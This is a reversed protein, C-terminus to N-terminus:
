AFGTAVAADVANGGEKMIQAGVESAIRSDSAVMAHPAFAARAGAPFRWTAPFMARVRKPIAPGDANRSYPGAAATLLSAAILSGIVYSRNPIFRVSIM